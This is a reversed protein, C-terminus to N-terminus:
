LERFPQLFFVNFNNYFFSFWVNVSVENNNSIFRLTSNLVLTVPGATSSARLLYHTLTLVFANMKGLERETTNFSSCCLM